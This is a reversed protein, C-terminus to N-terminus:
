RTFNCTVVTVSVMEERDELPMVQSSCAALESGPRCYTPSGGCGQDVACRFEVALGDPPNSEVICAETEECRVDPGCLYEDASCGVGCLGLAWIVTILARM